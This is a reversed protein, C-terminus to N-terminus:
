RDRLTFVKRQGLYEMTVSAQSIDVIRCDLVQDNVGLLQGNILASPHGSNYFIAHVKIRDLGAAPAVALAPVTAELKPPALPAPEPKAVAPVPAAELAMQQNVPTPAEAVPNFRTIELRVMWTLVAGIGLGIGLWQWIVTWNFPAAAASTEPPPAVPAAPAVAAAAPKARFLKTDGKGSEPERRAFRWLDVRDAKGIGALYDCDLMPAPLGDTEPQAEHELVNAVHVATLATFTKDGARRPQHHLAAIKVVEPSMGWRALLYAGIEGHTAGFIDKEMEWLPVQHKRAATHVRHYQDDFNAALVVKGLDHMLGATYADSSCEADNTELLAMVRATRAVNTSHRWIHDISFYVPKLKDYQSLLKVTMVLSKVTDFGLIGVAETPDTIARPLGFYASNLVQVLKTTMSMDRAIIAGIEATSAHPNKLANVVELYISPITPFSRIRGVLERVSDTMGYDSEISREISNKLTDSDFPLALFQHAGMVSCMVKEKLAAAALIFRLTKPYATRIRNLLEAVASEPLNYDAVVVDFPAKQAEAFAAECSTAGVVTWVEGLAKRFEDWVTADADAILMRKQAMGKVAVMVM